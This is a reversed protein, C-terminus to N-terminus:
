PPKEQKKGFARITQAQSTLRPNIKVFKDNELVNQVCFILWRGRASGRLLYLASPCGLTAHPTGCRGCFM